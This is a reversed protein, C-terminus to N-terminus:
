TAYRPSTAAPPWSPPRPRHRCSSGSDSPAANTRTPTWCTVSPGATFNPQWNGPWTRPTRCALNLGPGGAASHVHAADGAIFVRRDRYREALRTNRGCLRRLLTPAGDAPETLPVRVGIIREVSDEIETLTVPSGTGPYTGAPHDEWEATHIIPREPHSLGITFVGRETRYFSAPIEGLGAIAVRGGPRPRFHDSPGVLASRDVVNTDTFGPFGIGSQKRILSRAGDCGVVFRARFTTESGDEDAATVSVHDDAQSFSRATCGRRLDVGLESARKGLVGELDRQNLRLLHM